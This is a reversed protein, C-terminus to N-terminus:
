GFMKALSEALEDTCGDRYIEIDCPPKLGKIDRYIRGKYIATGSGDRAKIWINSFHNYEADYIETSIDCDDVTYGKALFEAFGASIQEWYDAAFFHSLFQARREIDEEHEPDCYNIIWGEVFRMTIDDLFNLMEFSDDLVTYNVHEFGTAGIIDGAFSNYAGRFFEIYIIAGDDYELTCVTYINYLGYAFHSYESHADIKKVKRDGVFDNYIPAFLAAKHEKLKDFDFGDINRQRRLSGFIKEEGCYTADLYGKFDKDAIYRALKKAEISQGITEFSVMGDGKVIQGVSLFGVVGLVGLLLVGLSIMVAMNMKLRRSLKKFVNKETPVPAPRVQEIPTNLLRRCSDCGEIHSEVAARSIESCLGESYLPILDKVVECDMTNKDM